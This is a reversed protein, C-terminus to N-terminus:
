DQAQDQGLIIVKVKSLPTIKVAQFIEEWQPYCLYTQYEKKIDELLKTFYAEKYEQQFFELWSSDVFLTKNYM